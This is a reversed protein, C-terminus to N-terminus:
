LSVNLMLYFQFGRLRSEFGTGGVVFTLKVPRVQIWEAISTTESAPTEYVRLNFTADGRFNM